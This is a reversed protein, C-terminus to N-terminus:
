QAPVPVWPEPCNPVYPYYAGASRCYYWYTPPPPAYTPAPVPYVSAPYAYVPAPYAYVPAFAGGLVAGTFVGAAFGGFFCCGGHHFHGHHFRHGRHFGGDWANATPPIVLPAAVLSLAVLAALIQKM